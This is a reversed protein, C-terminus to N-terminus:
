RGVTVSVENTKSLAAKRAAKIADRRIEFQTRMKKYPDVKARIPKSAIPKRNAKVTEIHKYGDAYEVQITDNTITTHGRRGHLTVRGTENSNMQNYAKKLACVEVWLRQYDSPKLVVYQFDGIQVVDGSEIQPTGRDEATALTATALVLAAIINM